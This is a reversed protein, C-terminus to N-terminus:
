HSCTCTKLAKSELPLGCAGCVRVKVEYKKWPGFEDGQANVGHCNGYNRIAFSRAAQASASSVVHTREKLGEVTM